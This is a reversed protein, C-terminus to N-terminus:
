MMSDLRSAKHTAQNIETHADKSGGGASLALSAREGIQGFQAVIAQAARGTVFAAATIGIGARNGRTVGDRNEVFGAGALNRVDPEGNGVPFLLVQLFDHQSHIPVALGRRADFSRDSIEEAEAGAVIKKILGRRQRTPSVLGKIANEGHGEALM